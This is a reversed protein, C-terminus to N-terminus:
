VAIIWKLEILLNTLSMWAKGIILEDLGTRGVNHWVKM